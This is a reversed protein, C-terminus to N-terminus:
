ICIAVLTALFMVTPVITMLLTAPSTVTITHKRHIELPGQIQAEEMDLLAKIKTLALIQGEHNSRTPPHIGSPDSVVAEARALELEICSRVTNM